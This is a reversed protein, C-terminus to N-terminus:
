QPLPTTYTVAEGSICVEGEQNVVTTKITCIPKDERVTLIEVRGTITDGIYTPKSFKWEVNLFVTGPGPLDEAVVANLVGSTVGGQTILGGFRSKEAAERDFHLPNKDGSMESFLDIHRESIEISREATDGVKPMDHRADVWGNTKAQESM